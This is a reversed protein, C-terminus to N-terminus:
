QMIVRPLNESQGVVAMKIGVLVILIMYLGVLHTCASKSGLLMTPEGNFLSRDRITSLRKSSRPCNPAQSQNEGDEHIQLLYNYFADDKAKRHMNYSSYSASGVNHTAAVEACQLDKKNSTQAGNNWPAAPQSHSDLPKLNGSSQRRMGVPHHSRESLQSNYNTQNNATGDSSSLFSSSSSFSSSMLGPKSGASGRRKPSQCTVAQLNGKEAFSSSSENLSAPYTSHLGAGDHYSDFFMEDGTHFGKSPMYCWTQQAENTAKGAAHANQEHPKQAEISDHCSGASSRRRFTTQPNSDGKRAMGIQRLYSAPDSCPRSDNRGEDNDDHSRTEAFDLSCSGGPCKMRFKRSAM